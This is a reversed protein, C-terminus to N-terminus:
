ARDYRGRCRRCAGSGITQIQCSCMQSRVEDYRFGACRLLVLASQCTPSQARLVARPSLRLIVLSERRKGKEIYVHDTLLCAMEKRTWEKKTRTNALWNVCPVAM